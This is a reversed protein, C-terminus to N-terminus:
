TLTGQTENGGLGMSVKMLVRSGEFEVRGFLGALCGDVLSDGSDDVDVKLTRSSDGLNHFCGLCHHAVVTGAGVVEEINHETHIASLGLALEREVQGSAILSNCGGLFIHGEVGLVRNEAVRMAQGISLPLLIPLLLLSLSIVLNM